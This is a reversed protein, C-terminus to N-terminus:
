ETRIPKQSSDEGHIITLGSFRRVGPRFKEKNRERYKKHAIEAEEKSYFIRCGWFEPKFKHM